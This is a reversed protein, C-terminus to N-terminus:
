WQVMGTNVDVPADGPKVWVGNERQELMANKVITHLLSKAEDMPLSELPGLLGSDGAEAWGFHVRAKGAKVFAERSGFRTHQKILVFEIEDWNIDHWGFLTRWAFGDPAVLMAFVAPSAFRMLLGGAIVMILFGAALMATDNSTQTVRTLAIYVNTLGIIALLLAAFLVLAYIRRRTASPKILMSSKYEAALLFDDLDSAPTSTSVM